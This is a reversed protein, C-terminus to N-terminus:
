SNLDAGERETGRRHRDPRGLCAFPSSFVEGSGWNLIFDARKREREESGLLRAQTFDVSRMM